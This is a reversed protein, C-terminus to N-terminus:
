YILNTHKLNKRNNCNSFSVTKKRIKPVHQEFSRRCLPCERRELEVFCRICLKHPINGCPISVSLNENLNEYCIPCKM